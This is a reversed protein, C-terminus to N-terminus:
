FITCKLPNMSLSIITVALNSRTLILGKVGFRTLNDLFMKMILTQPKKWTVSLGNSSLGVMTLHLIGCWKTTKEAPHQNANFVLDNRNQWIIWPFGNRLFFWIPSFPKLSKPLPKDFLCQLVSFFNRPGLIGRKAFLQWIVNAVYCWVQQALPNSFFIHEVSELLNYM